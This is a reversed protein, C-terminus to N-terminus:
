QDKEMKEEKADDKPNTSNRAVKIVKRQQVTLVSDKIIGMIERRKDKIEERNTGSSEFSNCIEKIKVKQPDTLTVTKDLKHILSQSIDFEKHKAHKDKHKKKETKAAKKKKQNVDDQHGNECATFILVGSLLLLIFNSKKMFNLNNTKLSPM